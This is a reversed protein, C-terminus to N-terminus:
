PASEPTLTSSPEGNQAVEAKKIQMYDTVEFLPLALVVILAALLGIAILEISGDDKELFDQLM